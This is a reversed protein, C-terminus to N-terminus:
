YVGNYTFQGLVGENFLLCDFMEIYIQPNNKM